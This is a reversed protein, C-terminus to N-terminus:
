PPTSQFKQFGTAIHGPKIVTSIMIINQNDLFVARVLRLYKDRAILRLSNGEITCGAAAGSLYDPVRVFEDFWNRGKPDAPNPFGFGVDPLVVKYRQCFASLNLNFLVYALREWATTMNDRDPMFGIIRPRDHRCILLAPVASFVAGLLIDGLLRVNINGDADNRVRRIHDISDHCEDANKWAKMMLITNDLSTRVGTIGDPFVKRDRNPLFIFSFHPGSRLFDLGEASVNKTDKLDRPLCTRIRAQLQDLPVLVPYVTYAFADSGRDEAGVCFDAAILWDTAPHQRVFDAFDAEADKPLNGLITDLVADPWNAAPDHM